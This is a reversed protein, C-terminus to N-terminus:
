NSRCEVPVTEGFRQFDASKIEFVFKSSGRNARSRPSDADIPQNRVDAAALSQASRPWFLGDCCLEHGVAIATRSLASPVWASMSPDATIGENNWSAESGSAM